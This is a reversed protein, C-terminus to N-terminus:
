GTQVWTGNQLTWTRGQTDKKTVSPAATAGGLGPAPTIGSPDIMEPPPKGYRQTYLNKALAEAEALTTPDLEAWGLRGYTNFAVQDLIENYAEDQKAAWQLRQYATIGGGSALTNTRQGYYATQAAKLAEDTRTQTVKQKAEGAAGVANGLHGMLSQGPAIPQMAKIGFQVMAAANGPQSLFEKWQGGLSPAKSTPAEESPPSTGQPTGEGEAIDLMQGTTAM